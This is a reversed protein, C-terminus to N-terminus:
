VKEKYSSGGFMKVARYIISIKWGPVRNEQMAMKYIDDIKSKTKLGHRYGTDHIVSPAFLPGGVKLWWRFAWPISAGDTLQGARVTVGRYELDELVRWQGNIGTPSVKINIM